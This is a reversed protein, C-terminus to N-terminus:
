SNAVRDMVEDFLQESAPGTPAVLWDAEEAPIRVLDSTEEDGPRDPVGHERRLLEVLGEVRGVHGVPVDVRVAILDTTEPAASKFRLTLQGSGDESRSRLSAAACREAKADMIVAAPWRLQLTGECYDLQFGPWQLHLTM